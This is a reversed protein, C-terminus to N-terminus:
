PVLIHLKITICHTLNTEKLLGFYSTVNLEYYAPIGRLAFNNLTAGFRYCKNIFSIDLFISSIFHKNENETNESYFNNKVAFFVVYKWIKVQRRDSQKRGIFFRKIFKLWYMFKLQSTKRIMFDFHCFTYLLMNEILVPIIKMEHYMCSFLCERTAM